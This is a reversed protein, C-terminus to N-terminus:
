SGPEAFYSASFVGPRDGDREADSSAPSILRELELPETPEAGEGVGEEVPEGWGGLPTGLEVANLVGGQLDGARGHLASRLADTATLFDGVTGPAQEPSSVITPTIALMLERRDEEDTTNRFAAGLVPIDGAIPIRRESTRRGSEIIGALLITKGHPVIVETSLERTTFEPGLDTMAGVEQILQNIQLTVMGSENIRPTVTLELGTEEREIVERVATGEDSTVSGTPVPVEGGVQFIAQARDRVMVTPQQLVDVDSETRLAQVIAQGSSGVLTISGTPNAVLGPTGFIDLVTGDEELLNLFYDVGFELRDQLSVEAVIANLMVQQPPRDIDTIVTLLEAYDEPTARVLLLDEAADLVLRMRPRGDPAGTGGGVISGDGEVRGAFLERMLRVLETADYHQIYYRYTGMSAEGSPRDITGLVDRVGALLSADRAVVMLEPSGPVAFFSVGAQQGGGTAAGVISTLLRVADPAARHALRYTHIEVGEFAPVDLAEIIRAIRNTNRVTDVLLITRGSAVASGGPSLFTEAGSVLTSADVHRPTVIRVAPTDTEFAAEARLIPASAVAGMGTGAGGRGSSAGKFTIVGDQEVIMWGYVSALGGLLDRVGGLTMEDDIAMTVLQSSTVISPDIIISAGLFEGALTRIVEEAKAGNVAYRVRILEGVGGMVVGEAGSPARAAELRQRSVLEPGSGGSAGMVLARSVPRDGSNWVPPAEFARVVPEAIATEDVSTSACGSLWVLASASVAAGACV